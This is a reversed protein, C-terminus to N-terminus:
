LQKILKETEEIILKKWAKNACNPNKVLDILERAYDKLTAKEKFEKSM